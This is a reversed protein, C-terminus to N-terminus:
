APVSDQTEQWRMADFIQSCDAWLRAKALRSVFIAAASGFQRPQWVTPKPRPLEVLRMAVGERTCGCIKTVVGGGSRAERGCSPCRWVRRVDLELRMGPGKM